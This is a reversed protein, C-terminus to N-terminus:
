LIRDDVGCQMIPYAMGRLVEMLTRFIGRKPKHSNHIKTYSNKTTTATTHDARRWALVSLLLFALLTGGEAPLQPVRCSTDGTLVHSHLVTGVFLAPVTVQAVAERLVRSQVNELPALLAFNVETVAALMRALTTGGILGSRDAWSTRKRHLREHLSIRPPLIM